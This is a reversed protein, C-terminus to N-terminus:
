GATNKDTRKSTAPGGGPKPGARSCMVKIAQWEEASFAPTTFIGIETTELVRRRETTLPHTSLLALAKTFADDGAVRELLSALARPQFGLREANYAAFRDAEAEEERSFRSDILAAGLGGAVSIGTMDGLIFGILLGTGASSILQQMAHRHVVHGLEHALVGAFEDQSETVDLLASFYFAKGGPLAFANPIESRVVKVDPTFPSRGDGLAAGAFRAIARNALSGPDPDCIEFGGEDTLSAEIQRAVENGFQQEWEAPILGTMRSAVLPVGYLYAVIVSALAVTALGMLRLQQGDDRRRRDALAPLAQRAARANEFGSFVLRAGYPHGTAGVRLETRRGHLPFVDAATWTALRRGTAVEAIEIYAANISAVVESVAAVTGDCYRAPLEM